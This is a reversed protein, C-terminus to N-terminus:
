HRSVLCPPLKREAELGLMVYTILHKSVQGAGKCTSAHELTCTRFVMAGKVLVAEVRFPCDTDLSCIHTRSATTALASVSRPPPYGKQRADERLFDTVEAHTGLQSSAM